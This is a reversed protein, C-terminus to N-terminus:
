VQTSREIEQRVGKDLRLKFKKPLGKYLHSAKAGDPLLLRAFKGNLILFDVLRKYDGDGSVLVIKNFNDSECMLMRMADFVIDTDVNGKKYSQSESDHPRYKVKYGAKNLQKYLPIFEQKYCGIHYYAVKVGYDSKLFKRFKAFDIQWGKEARTTGLFLNQGDIFAINEYERM